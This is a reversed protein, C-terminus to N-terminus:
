CRGMGKSPQLKRPAVMEEKRRKEAEESDRKRKAVVNSWLEPDNESVLREVAEDGGRRLLLRDEEVEQDIGAAPRMAAEKLWRRCSAPHSDPSPSGAAAPRVLVQLFGSIVGAEDVEPSSSRLPESSPTAMPPTLPPGQQAPSRSRSGEACGGVKGAEIPTGLSVGDLSAPAAPKPPLPGTQRMARLRKSARTPLSQPKAANRKRKGETAPGVVGAVAPLAAPQVAAVSVEVDPYASSVDKM